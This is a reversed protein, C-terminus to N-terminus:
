LLRMLTENNEWYGSGEPRVVCGQFGAPVKEVVSPCAPQTTNELQRKASMLCHLVFGVVSVLGAALVCLGPLTGYFVVATASLVLLLPAVTLTCSLAYLTTVASVRATSFIM